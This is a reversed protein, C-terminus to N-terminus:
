GRGQVSAGEGSRPTCPQAPRSGNCSKGWHSGACLVSMTFPPMGPISFAPSSPPSMSATVPLRQVKMHKGQRHGPPSPQMTRSRASTSESPITGSRFLCTVGAGTTGHYTFIGSYHPNQFRACEPKAYVIFGTMANSQTVSRRAKIKGADVRCRAGEHYIKGQSIAKLRHTLRISSDGFRGERERENDSKTTCNAIANESNSYVSLVGKLHSKGRQPGWPCTKTRPTFTFAM